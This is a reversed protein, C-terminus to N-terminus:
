LDRRQFVFYALVVGVLGAVLLVALDWGRDLRGGFDAYGKLIAAGQFYHFPSLWSAWEARSWFKGVIEILYLAIAGVSIMAQASGRRRSWAGAALAAAGFCWAVAALNGM